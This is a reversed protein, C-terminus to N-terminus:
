SKMELVKMSENIWNMIATLSALVAPSGFGHTVMSFHTLHKQISPDLIPIPTSTCLPSRDNNLLEKFESLVTKAAMMMNKKRQIGQIDNNNLNSNIMYEAIQKAPFDNECIHNFDKALHLAEFEVLATLSNVNTAKRRGAPLSLGVKKLQDRLSKGGDKSKARRLIGGLVSANLCEPHSLRRQIEGVTVKYKAASSLLSLRGPVSCFVELPNPSVSPTVSSMSQIGVINNNQPIQHSQHQLHSINQPFISNNNECYEEKVNVLKRIVSNPQQESVYSEDSSHDRDSEIINNMKLSYGSNNDLELKIIHNNQSQRMDPSIIQQHDPSSNMSNPYHTVVLENNNPNMQMCQTPYQNISIFSSDCNDTRQNGIFNMIYGNGLNNNNRNNTITSNINTMNGTPYVVTGQNTTNFIQNEVISTSSHHHNSVIYRPTIQQNEGINIMGLNQNTNPEIIYDNMQNNMYHFQQTPVTSVSSTNRMQNPHINNIGNNHLPISRLQINNM